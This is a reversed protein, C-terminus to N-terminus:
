GVSGDLQRRVDEVAEVVATLDEVLSEDLINARALRGLHSLSVRMGSIATNMARMDAADIM